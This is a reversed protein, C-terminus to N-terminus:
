NRKSMKDILDHDRNHVRLYLGILQQVAMSLFKELQAADVPVDGNQISTHTDDYSKNRPWDDPRPTWIINLMLRVEPHGDIVPECAKWLDDRLKTRAGIDDGESSVQTSVIAM